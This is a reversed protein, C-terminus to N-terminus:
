VEVKMLDEAIQTNKFIKRAEDLLIKEKHEYRQSLHALILKRAKSKKAILAAQVATLHHYRKALDAQKEAYVAESILLDSNKASLFCNPNIETDFIFSIIKGKQQYTLDKARITKGNYKINKGKVIDAIIRGRLKLHHLKDKDIRIKEKEIFSYSNCPAGHKMPFAQLYFDKNEFIKSTKKIEIIKTKLKGKFIFLKLILSIFRKTGRPGYIELINNYKNLALTQFLGPLGLIHDGHWHTILIKTLKCPNLKMKRFQRQTGEGCDILINENAYSLLIATHNRTATPVAQSTGLFYVPIKM